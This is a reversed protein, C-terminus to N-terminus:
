DVIVPAQASLGGPVSGGPGLGTGDCRPDSSCLFTGKIRSPRITRVEHIDFCVFGVVNQPDGSSCHAGPNQCQVLPLVVVWSDVNGDSNTDVGAPPYGGRGEFRDRIEGIM